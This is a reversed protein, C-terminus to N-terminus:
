LKLCTANVLEKKARSCAVYYLNLEGIEERSLNDAGITRARLLVSLVVTNLDDAIEVSDFELGKTSHSTGLIYPQNTSTHKQAKEYCEIIAKKGYKLVINLANILPVDDEHVSKLYSLPSAYEDRIITSEFYHNIDTQLHKYEPNPIFGNYKLGCLMLPIQFIQKPTRTLGYKTGRENLEMMKSILSANTRSIYARTKIATDEIEIGKFQILPDLHRQCFDEIDSAIEKSVRFSQSMPLMIGENAMVEFCNITHNFMYINQHPDGVMIKKKTPLLNFIELTVANLDGAEDLAVFDFKDYEIHSGALLIHFLKLYFDHTCVMEGQEMLGLYKNGLEITKEHLHHEEGYDAFTLHKSLCFKRIHEVLACKDEYKIKDSINRCSFMGLELNHLDFTPRYALSHTTCCEVYKPFRKKAETAISKNYALYLGSSANNYKKLTKAIAVLLTTKGSGAVASTKTLGDNNKVHDIIIQQEPTAKM